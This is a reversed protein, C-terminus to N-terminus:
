AMVQLVQRVRPERRCRHKRTQLAKFFLLLGTLFLLTGGLSRDLPLRHVLVGYGFYRTADPLLGEVTLVECVFDRVSRVLAAIRRADDIVARVAALEM